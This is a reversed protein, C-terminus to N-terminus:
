RLLVFMTAAVLMMAAAMVATVLLTLPVAGAFTFFPRLISILREPVTVPALSLTRHGQISHGAWIDLTAM